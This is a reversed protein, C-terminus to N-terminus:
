LMFKKAELTVCHHNFSRRLLRRDKWFSEFDAKVEQEYGFAALKSNQKWCDQAERLSNLLISNLWQYRRYQHYGAGTAAPTITGRCTWSVRHVLQEQKEEQGQPGAPGTRQRARHALREQKERQGQPGTAGQRERSGQPGTAGTEGAPGQLVQCAAGQEKIEGSAGTTGYSQEGTPGQPGPIGLFDRHGRLPGQPGM